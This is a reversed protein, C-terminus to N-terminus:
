RRDATDGGGGLGLTNPDLGASQVAARLNATEGMSAVKALRAQVMTAIAAEGVYVQAVDRSEGTRRGLSAIPIRCEDKEGNAEVPITIAFRGGKNGILKVSPTGCTRGGYWMGYRALFVYGTAVIPEDDLTRLLERGVELAGAVASDELELQAAIQLLRNPTVSAATCLSYVHAYVDGRVIAHESVHTAKLRHLEVRRVSLRQITEDIEAIEAEYMRGQAQSAAIRAIAEPVVQEIAALAARQQEARKASVGRPM